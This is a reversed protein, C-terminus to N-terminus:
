NPAEQTGTDDYYWEWKMEKAVNKAIQEASGSVFADNGAIIQVLNSTKIQPNESYGGDSNALLITVQLFPEGARNEFNVSSTQRLNKQRSLVKVILSVDEEQSSENSKVTLYETM